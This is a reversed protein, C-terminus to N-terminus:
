AALGNGGSLAMAVGVLAIVIGAKIIRNKHKAVYHVVKGGFDNWAQSIDALPNWGWTGSPDSGNVPDRAIREFFSTRITGACM